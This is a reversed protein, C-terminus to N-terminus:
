YHILPITPYKSPHTSDAIITNLPNLATTGRNDPFINEFCSFVIRFM